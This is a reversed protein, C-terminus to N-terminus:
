SQRIRDSFSPFVTRGTILRQLIRNMSTGQRVTHAHDFATRLARDIRGGWREASFLGLDDETSSSRRESCGLADSGSDFRHADRSRNRGVQPCVAVFQALFYQGLKRGEM